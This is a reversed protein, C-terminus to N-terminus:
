GREMGGFALVSSSGGEKGACGLRDWGMKERGIVWVWM